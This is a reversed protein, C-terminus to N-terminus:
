LKHHHLPYGRQQYYRYRERAGERVGPAETVVELTREFRSFFPPVSEALNILVSRELDPETNYGIAVPEQVAQTTYTTGAGTGSNTGTNTSAHGDTHDTCVVRCHPVFSDDRFGWLAEDVRKALDQDDTHIFVRRSQRVAKEALRCVMDTRSDISNTSEPETATPHSTAPDSTATDSAAPDTSASDTSALVYFDVRTM